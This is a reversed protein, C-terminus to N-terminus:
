GSMKGNSRDYLFSLFGTFSLSNGSRMQAASVMRWIEDDTLIPCLARLVERLKAEGISGDETEMKAFADRLACRVRSDKADIGHMGVPAHDADELESSQPLDESAHPLTGTDCCDPPQPVSHVNETSTPPERTSQPLHPEVILAPLSDDRCGDDVAAARARAAVRHGSWPRPQAGPDHCGGASGPRRGGIRRKASLPRGLVLAAAPREIGMTVRANSTQGDAFGLLLTPEGNPRLGFKSCKAFGPRVPAPPQAAAIEEVSDSGVPTQSEAGMTDQTSAAHMRSSSLVTHCLSECFTHGVPEARPVDQSSPQECTESPPVDLVDLVDPDDCPLSEQHANTWTPTQEMISDSPLVDRASSNPLLVNVAPRIDLESPLSNPPCAHQLEFGSQASPTRRVPAFVETSADYDVTPSVPIECYPPQMNTVDRHWKSMSPDRSPDWQWWSDTGWRDYVYSNGAISQWSDSYHDSGRYDRWRWASDQARWDRCHTDKLGEQQHGLQKSEVPSGPWGDNKSDSDLVSNSALAHQSEHSLKDHHIPPKHIVSAADPLPVVPLLDEPTVPGVLTKKSRHGIICSSIRPMRGTRFCYCGAFLPVFCLMGAIAGIASAAFVEAFADSDGDDSVVITPM